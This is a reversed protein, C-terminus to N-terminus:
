NWPQLWWRYHNQLGWGIFHIAAEVIGGEIEWSTIPSSAMIKPKQINIKLGVKENEKVKMLLCHWLISLSSCLQVWRVCPCLLSALQRRHPQLTPCLQLWKAAAATACALLTISLIRWALSWCYMFRSSESTWAPKQFPLPVLSWIALMRQIM